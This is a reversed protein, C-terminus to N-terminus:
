KRWRDVHFYFNTKKETGMTTYKGHGPLVQVDDPIVEQLLQLSKMLDEGSGGEFDTRGVSNKFLTDGSFLLKEEPIYYCVGGPTHGPTLFSRLQIDGISFEPDEALDIERAPMTCSPVGFMRAMDSLTDAVIQDKSHYTIKAEPLAKKLEEAGYVHDIHAHTFLIHTVSAGEAKLAELLTPVEGGPDIVAAMKTKQSILFYTNVGFSGICHRIIKVNPTEFEDKFHLM